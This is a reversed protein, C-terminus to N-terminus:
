AAQAEQERIFNAVDKYIMLTNEPLIDGAEPPPPPEVGVMESVTATIVNLRTDLLNEFTAKMKEAFEASIDEDANGTVAENIEGREFPVEYLGFNNNNTSIFQALNRLQLANPGTLNSQIARLSEPSFKQLMASAVFDKAALVLAIDDPDSMRMNESSLVALTKADLEMIARAITVPGPNYKLRKFTNFKGASSLAKNVLRTIQGDPLGKGGLREIMFKGARIINQNGKAAAKLEKFNAKIADAREKAKEPPRVRGAGDVCIFRANKLLIDRADDDYCNGFMDKVSDKLQNMKEPSDRDYTTINEYVSDIAETNKMAHGAASEIATKVAMIRRATLPKGRGYDELKMADRVNDPIHNEGGFMKAITDRFLTRVNDNAARQTKTRVLNGIFDLGGATKITRSSGNLEVKTDLQARATSKASVAFDTFMRFDANNIDIAM